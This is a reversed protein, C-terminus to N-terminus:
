RHADRADLPQGPSSVGRRLGIVTAPPADLHDALFELWAVCQEADVLSYPRDFRFRALLENSLVYDRLIVERPVGLM